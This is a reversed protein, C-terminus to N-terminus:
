KFKVSKVFSIFNAKERAALKKEGTLKVFWGQDEVIVIAGLISKRDGVLEIVHGDHGDVTVPELAKQLEAQEIEQLGIQGRWRNINPLLVSGAAALSSVTIECKEGDATVEFAAKRFPGTTGPKWDTPATFSFEDSEVPEVPAKPPAAPGQERKPPEAGPLKPGGAGRNAFPPMSASSALTGKLNVWTVPTGDKLILRRLEGDQSIQKLDAKALDGLKMQGRWRNINALLYDDSKPDDSPLTIVSCELKSDAGGIKFTAARMEAGPQESWDEPKTWKLTGGEITLSKLLEHFKPLEASVEKDSGTLKFFWGKREVPVIAALMRDNASLAAPKPERSPERNPETADQNAFPANAFPPAGSGSSLSGELSVWTVPTGDKLTLRRLEGDPTINQLDALALASLGIQGRWRNVNALLYDDSKPDTAPFAIVSCELELEANGLKFTAERMETGPRESWGEPKKWKLRDGTITLSELLEQFKPMAASVAAGSGSIKFFYGKGGVPVIAALMRDDAPMVAPKAVRVREIKPAEGCGSASVFLMALLCGFVSAARPLKQDRM